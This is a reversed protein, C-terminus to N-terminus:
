LFRGRGDTPPGREVVFGLILVSRYYLETAVRNNPLALSSGEDVFHFKPLATLTNPIYIILPHNTPAYGVVCLLYLPFCV